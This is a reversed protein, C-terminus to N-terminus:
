SRGSRRWGSHAACRAARILRTIFLLARNALHFIPDPLLNPWSRLLNLFLGPLDETLCSLLYGATEIRLLIACGFTELVGRMRDTLGTLLQSLLVLGSGYRLVGVLCGFLDLLERGIELLSIRVLNQTLSLAQSALFRGREKGAGKRQTQSGRTEESAGWRL